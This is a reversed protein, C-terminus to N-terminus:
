PQEGLMPTVAAVISQPSSMGMLKKWVGTKLNGALLVTSHEDINEGDTYAGLRYRVWDVNEKKGTLFTWGPKIQFNGAFKRLAAPTDQSPDVTISVIYVDRGAREGFLEQVQVLNATMMNCVGPCTAYMFNILVTKEKLMDDYFRVAKGDQTLLPLNSFYRSAAEKAPAAKEVAQVIQAASALGELRQWSAGERIVLVTGSHEAPNAVGAGLAVLLADIQPKKGTVFHWGPGADFKKAFAKLRQPVDTAPDISISILAVDRGVRKGLTRQVESMTAAQTPCLMTCSTFIFNVVVTKDGVLDRHFRVSRGDQDVVSAEPVPRAAVSAANAANAAATVGCLAGLLLAAAWRAVPRAMRKTMWGAM